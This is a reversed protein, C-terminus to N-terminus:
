TDGRGPLRGAQEAKALLREAFDLREEVEALRAKMAELEDVLASDPPAAGRLRDAKAHGLPGKLLKVVVVAAVVVLIVLLDTNHM